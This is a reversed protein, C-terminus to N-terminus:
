YKGGSQTDSKTKADILNIAIQVWVTCPKRDVNELEINNKFM